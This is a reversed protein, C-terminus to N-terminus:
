WQNVRQRRYIEAPILLGITIDYNNLNMPIIVYVRVKLNRVLIWNAESIEHDMDNIKLWSDM